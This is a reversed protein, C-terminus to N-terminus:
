IKAIKVLVKRLMNLFEDYLTTVDLVNGYSLFYKSPAPPPPNQIKIYLICYHLINFITNIIICKM